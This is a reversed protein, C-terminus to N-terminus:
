PGTAYFMADLLDTQRTPSVHGDCFIATGGGTHFGYVPVEPLKLADLLNAVGDAFDEMDPWDKSLADSLGDTDALAALTTPADPDYPVAGHMKAHEVHDPHDINFHGHEDRTYEVNDFSFHSVEAPAVMKM